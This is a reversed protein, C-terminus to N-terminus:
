SIRRAAGRDADASPGREDLVAQGAVQGAAERGAALADGVLVVLLGQGGVEVDQRLGLRQTASGDAGGRCCLEIGLPDHLSHKTGSRLVALVRLCLWRDQM